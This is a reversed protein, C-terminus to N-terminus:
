EYLYEEDEAPDYDAFLDDTGFIRKLGESNRALVADDDLDIHEDWLGDFVFAIRVTDDKGVLTIDDAMAVLEKFAKLGTPLFPTAGEQTTVAVIAHATNPNPKEFKQVTFSDYVDLVDLWSNVTQMKQLVAPSVVTGYFRDEEHIGDMIDGTMMFRKGFDLLRRISEYREITATTLDENFTYEEPKRKNRSM